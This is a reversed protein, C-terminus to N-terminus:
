DMSARKPPWNQQGPASQYKCRTHHTRTCHIDRPDRCTLYSPSLHTHTRTGKNSLSHRLKNPASLSLEDLYEKICDRKSAFIIKLDDPRHYVSYTRIPQITGFYVVVSPLEDLQTPLVISRLAWCHLIYYFMHRRGGQPWRCTFCRCRRRPHERCQECAEVLYRMYKQPM